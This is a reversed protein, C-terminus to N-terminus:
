KGSKLIEEVSDAEIDNRMDENKKDNKRNDRKGGEKLESYIEPNTDQKIMSLVRNNSPNRMWSIAADDTMGLIFQGEDGYVYAKNKIKIVGKERAEVFLIRLSLDDGTYLSIIKDPVKAAIKLLYETVDDDTAGTMDRGIIKCMMRRGEDERPDEFILKKADFMKREASVARNSEMAPNEVYLEAVGYRKEDGDIVFNGNADRQSRSMAILPCHEIAEWIARDMPKNMDFERGSEFEIMKNQPIFITKGSSQAKVDDESLIMDGNSNVPRVHPPYQGTKPDICPQIVYIQGVRGYPSILRFKETGNVTKKEEKKM